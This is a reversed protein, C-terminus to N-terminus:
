IHYNSFFHSGTGRFWATKVNLPILKNSIICVWNKNEEATKQVLSKQIWKKNSGFLISAMQKKISSLALLKRPIFSSLSLSCLM